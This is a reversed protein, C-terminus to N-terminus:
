CANLLRGALAAIAHEVRLRRPGLSVPEFGQAQLQAVEFPVFGGEPGVALTVPAGLQYPCAATATPHAVLARSGAILAPLEDEVFPRFRRRIEVAPVITDGAQELGLLLQEHLAAPTLAPSSWYSKEVRHCNILVLRKIGFAAVSQVVRRVVKPRPLALVLTIPLAPPPDTDLLVELEVSDAGLATVVANGLRGGLRGVRLRTGVAARHVTRMHHARRGTVRVRDAAIFDAEDILLVNM